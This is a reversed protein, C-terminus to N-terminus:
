PFCGLHQWCSDAVVCGDNTRWMILSPASLHPAPDRMIRSSMERVAGSRDSGRRACLGRECCQSPSSVLPHVDAFQLRALVHSSELPPSQLFNAPLIRASNAVSRPSVVLM